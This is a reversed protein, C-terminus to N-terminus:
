DIIQLKSRSSSETGNIKDISRNLVDLYRGLQYKKNGQANQYIEYLYDSVNSAADVLICSESTTLKYVSEDEKEWGMVSNIMRSKFKEICKAM